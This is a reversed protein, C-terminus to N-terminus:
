ADSTTSRTRPRGVIPRRGVPRLFDGASPICPYSIRTVARREKSGARKGHLPNVGIFTYLLVGALIRARRTPVERHLEQLYSAVDPVPAPCLAVHRRWSDECRFMVLWHEVFRM